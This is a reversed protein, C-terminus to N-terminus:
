PESQRSRHLRWGLSYMVGGGLGGLLAWLAGHGAAFSIIGATVGFAAGVGVLERRGAGQPSKFIEDGRIIAEM